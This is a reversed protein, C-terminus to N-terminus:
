IVKHSILRELYRQVLLNTPIVVPNNNSNYPYADETDIGKNDKVYRMAAEPWGGDCGYCGYSYACDVLNQESLSVLDGTKQM